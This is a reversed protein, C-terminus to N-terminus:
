ETCFSEGLRLFRAANRCLIDRKQDGTLFPAQKVTNIAAPLADPWVMQDSGFMIRNEFGADVLRGLYHYFEAKPLLFSIVGIDVYLQPHAYLTAVADDLLPWGAHMAWLRLKPHRLLVDELQLLSSFRMRYGSTPPHYATGPPGPGMHIGIPVDLEEALQYYPEMFPDNVSIGSYQETVEAIAMIQKKQILERLQNVTPHSRVDPTPGAKM